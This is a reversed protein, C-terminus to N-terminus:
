EERMVVARRDCRRVNLAPVALFGEGENDYYVRTAPHRAYGAINDHNLGVLLVLDEEPVPSLEFLGDVYTHVINEDSFKRQASFHCFRSSLLILTCQVDDSPSSVFLNESKLCVLSEYLFGNGDADKAYISAANFDFFKVIVNKETPHGELKCYFPFVREEWDPHLPILEALNM